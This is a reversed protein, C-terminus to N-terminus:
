KAASAFHVHSVAPLGPGGRVTAIPGRSPAAADLIVVETRDHEADTVWVLLWGDDEHQAGPRPVMQVPSVFRRPGAHWTDVAGTEFDVKAVSRFFLYATDDPTASGDGHTGSWGYRSPRGHWAPHTSPAETAVGAVEHVQVEGSAAVRLRTPRPGRQPGTPLGFREQLEPPYTAAFSPKGPYGCADVVLEGGPLEFANFMHFFFLGPVPLTRAEGGARPLIVLHPTTQPDYGIADFGPKAGWLLTGLALQGWQFVVVFNPTVAIDHLNGTGAPLHGHVTHAVAGSRDIEFIQVKARQGPAGAVLCTVLRDSTPCYRMMQATNAPPGRWAGTLDSPGLTALTDPDLAMHGFADTAHLKGAWAYVAHSVPNALKANLLNKWRSPLNTFVFREAQKGAARAKRLSPTDVLKAQLRPAGDGLRLSAVLGLGDLLALKDPGCQLLGPGIRLFDGRLDPPLEGEVETLTVDLDRDFSRFLLDHDPM